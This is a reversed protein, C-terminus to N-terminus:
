NRQKRKLIFGIIFPLLLATAGIIEFKNKKINELLSPPEYQHKSYYLLKDIGADIGKYFNKDQFHLKMEEDLIEKCIGDPLIAELGNGTVTFEQDSTFIALLAGNGKGNQAIGWTDFIQQSLTEKTNIPGSLTVYVFLPIGTSDKFARLKANLLEEEQQTLFSNKLYLPDFTTVYNTPKQPFDQGYIFVPLLLFLLLLNKM